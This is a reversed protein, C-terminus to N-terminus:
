LIDKVISSLDTGSSMYICLSQLQPCHKKICELDGYTVISQWAYPYANNRVKRLDLKLLRAGTQPLDIELDLFHNWRHGISLRRLDKLYSWIRSSSEGNIDQVLPLIRTSDNDTFYFTELHRLDEYLVTAFFADMQVFKLDLHRLRSLKWTVQTNEASIDWDYGYLVLKDIALLSKKLAFNWRDKSARTMPHDEYDTSVRLTKLNGM